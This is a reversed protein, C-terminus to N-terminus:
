GQSKTKPGTRGHITSLKTGLYCIQKQPSLHILIYAPYSCHIAGKLIIIPKDAWRKKSEEEDLMCGNVNVSMVEEQAAALEGEDVAAEPAIEPGETITKIKREPEVYVEEEPYEEGDRYIRSPLKSIKSTSSSSSTASSTAM